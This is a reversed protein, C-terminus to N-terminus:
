YLKITFHRIIWEVRITAQEQSLNCVCFKFRQRIMEVSLKHGFDIKDM